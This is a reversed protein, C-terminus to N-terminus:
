SQIARCCLRCLHRRPDPLSIPFPQEPLATGCVSVRRRPCSVIHAVRHRYSLGILQAEPYVRRAKDLHHQDLM